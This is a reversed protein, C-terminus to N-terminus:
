SPSAILLRFRTTIRSGHPPAAPTPSVLPSHPFVGPPRIEPAVLGDIHLTAQVNTKYAYYGTYFNNFQNWGLRADNAISPSLIRTNALVGQRVVIPVQTSSNYFTGGTVSLDDGWSFRGFWTSNAKENWDVRQNFQTSETQSTSTGIYNNNLSANFGPVTQVPMYAPNMLALAAPSFRAAPVINGPFPTASAPGSASYKRTEPDYIVQVGPTLSFNGARMADPAVSAKPTNV